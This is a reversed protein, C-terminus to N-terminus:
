INKYEIPKLHENKNYIISKSKYNNNLLEYVSFNKNWIRKFDANINIEKRFNDIILNFDNLNKEMYGLKKNTFIEIINENTTNKFIDLINFKTKFGRLRNIDEISYIGNGFIYGNVNNKELKWNGLQNDYKLDIKKDSIISDTAFLILSDLLKENFHTNKNNIFPKILENKTDNTIKSAYFPNFLIGAYFYEIVDLFTKDYIEILKSNPYKLHNKYNLEVLKKIPTLQATCGYGSNLIIKLMKELPNNENKLELRKYYLEKLFHFPKIESNFKVYFGDIIEIELLDKNFNIYKLYDTLFIYSIFYDNNKTKPYVIVNNKLRISFINLFNHKQKIKVKLIGDDFYNEYFETLKGEKYVIEANFFSKLQYQIKPYASNIDSLYINEFKGKKFVEFHGGYYSNICYQIFKLRLNKSLKNKLKINYLNDTHTNKTFYFIKFIKAQSIPKNVILNISKFLDYLKDALKQTIKIDQMGYNKFEISNFLKPNDYFIKPNNIYIKRIIKHNKKCIPCSIKKNNEYDSFHINSKKEKESIFKGVNFNCKECYNLNTLCSFDLSKNDYFQLLDYITISKHLNSIFFYKNKVYELIINKFNISPIEYIISENYFKYKKFNESTPNIIIRYNRFFRIRFNRIENEPLHFDMFKILAGIDYDLNYYFYINRNQISFFFRIVDNFNRFEKLYPILNQTFYNQYAYGKITETDMVSINDYTQIPNYKYNYHTKFM